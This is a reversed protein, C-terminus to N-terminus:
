LTIQKDIKDCMEQAQTPGIILSASKLLKKIFKEVNEQTLTNKDLKSEKILNNIIDEAFDELYESAVKKINDITSEDIKYDHHEEVPAAKEQKDQKKEEKKDEKKEEAKEDPKSGKIKLKKREKLVVKGTKKEEETATEDAEETEQIIDALDTSSSTMIGVVEDPSLIFAFNKEGTFFEVISANPCEAADLSQKLVVVAQKAIDDTIGSGAIVANDGENSFAFDANYQEKLNEINVTM